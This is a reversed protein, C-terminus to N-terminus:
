CISTSILISPKNNPRPLISRESRTMASIVHPCWTPRCFPCDPYRSKPLHHDCHAVSGVGCLPCRNNPAASRIRDYVARAAGSTKSLHEEYLGTLEAKTVGGVSPRREVHHLSAATANAHYTVGSAALSAAIATLRAQRGPDTTAGLCLAFVSAQTDTPLPLSRM